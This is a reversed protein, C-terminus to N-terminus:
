KRGKRKIEIQLPLETQNFDLVTPEADDKTTKKRTWEITPSILVREAGAQAIVLKVTVPIEVTDTVSDRDASAKELDSIILDVNEDLLATAASALSASIRDRNESALKM